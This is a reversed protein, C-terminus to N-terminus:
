KYQTLYFFKFVLKYKIRLVNKKWVNKTIDGRHAVSKVTEGYTGYLEIEIELVFTWAGNVTCGFYRFM